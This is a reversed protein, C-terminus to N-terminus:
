LASYGEIPNDFICKICFGPYTLDTKEVILLKAISCNTLFTLFFEAICYCQAIKYYEIRFLKKFFTNIFCVTIQMGKYRKHFHLSIRRTFCVNKTVVIFQLTELTFEMSICYHLLPLVIICYRYYLCYVLLSLYFFSCSYM